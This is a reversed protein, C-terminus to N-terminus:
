RKPAFAALELAVEDLVERWSGPTQQTFIRMSPYWPSDDRGAFWYWIKGRGKPALLWVPRGLAGAMHATVNSVTIIVDCAACLAALGEIDNFLNVEDLHAINVGYRERIEGRIEATDGYQLDVFRTGPVRLVSSWDTLTSSKQLGLEPNTSIWSIGVIKGPGPHRLKTGFTGARQPDAKLYGAHRPFADFAPRLRRGLSALPSQCDFAAPDVSAPETRSVVTVAPFSRRMLTVLRPDAELTVDMGVRVLDGVMSSYIIEDGIGQEAWLLLRRGPALQGDWPAFDFRKQHADRDRWRWEYELWGQELNGQTLLAYALKWHAEADDPAVQVARRGAGVAEDPEGADLLTLGLDTWAAAFAPDLETARRYSEIAADHQGDRRLARALNFHLRPNSPQAEIARRYAALAESVKGLEVLVTGLNSWAETLGADLALAREIARRAEELQLRQKLVAGLNNWASALGPAFEVASRLAREAEELQGAQTLADGLNSWVPALRPNIAIAQRYAAIGAASEGRACLVGGLNSWAESFNPELELAKRYAQIGQELAGEGVLAAGLNFWARSHGPDLRVAQEAAARAESHRGQWRLAHALCSLADASNSDLALARQAAKVAEALKGQDRLADSARCWREASEM